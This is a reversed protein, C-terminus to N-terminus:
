NANRRKQWSRGAMGLLGVSLLLLSAPEPVRPLPSSSGSAGILGTLGAGPGSTNGNIADVIFYEAGDGHPGAALNLLQEVDTLSTGKSVTFSVTQLANASGASPGTTAGVDNVFGFGDFHQDQTADSLSGSYFASSFNGITLGGGLSDSFGFAGPFGTDIIKFGSALSVTITAVHTGTDLALHVSGFNGTGFGSGGNGTDLTLTCDTVSACIDASAATVLMAGLGLVVALAAVGVLQRRKVPRFMAM